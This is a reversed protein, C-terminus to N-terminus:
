KFIGNTISRYYALAIYMRHLQKYENPCDSSNIPIIKGNIVISRPNMSPIHRKENFVSIGWTKYKYDKPAIMEILTPMIDLHTMESIERKLNHEKIAKGYFIIPITSTEKPKTELQKPIMRSPHDGTIIFLADPYKKSIKEVFEAICKDAYWHHWIKYDLSDKDEPVVPCGEAKLDVDYPPHNSVSLIMNFSNEPIDCQTIYNFMDKDRLGWEVSNYLSGMSEGGVVKDFKNFRAFEGLQLWTSQGAYFFTTSYGLEKMHKAFSYDSSQKYVGKVSLETAPIGSIISSVTIMTGMGSPLANKCFLADKCLEEQQPSVNYDSLNHQFPWASNSEGIIVFIRSPKKAVIAGKAKYTLISDLNPSDVNFVKKAYNRMDKEKADFNKLGGVGTSKIFKMLENKLCYASNPVLNNLFLHPTVAIDRLQLPRGHLKGGRMMTIVILLYLIIIILAKTKSVKNSIHETKKYFFNTLYVIGIAYLIMAIIIITCPYDQQISEIIAKIDDIFLGFIWYNFQSDYEKFFCVNVVAIFTSLVIATNTYYKKTASFSKNIALGIMTFVTSPLLIYASTLMDFRVCMALWNWTIQADQSPFICYIVFRGVFYICFIFLFLYIDRLINKM